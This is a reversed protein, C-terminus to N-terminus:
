HYPSWRSRCEKGVRREESRQEDTFHKQGVGLDSFPVGHGHMIRTVYHDPTIFLDTPNKFHKDQAFWDIPVHGHPSIIPRDKIAEYLRRATSRQSPDAPLLRDENLASTM